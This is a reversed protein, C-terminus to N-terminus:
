GAEVSGEVLRLRGLGELWRRRTCRGGCRAAGAGCRGLWGLGRHGVGGEGVAGCAACLNFLAELGAEVELLEVGKWDVLEGDFDHEVDEAAELEM